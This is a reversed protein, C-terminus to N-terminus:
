TQETGADLNLDSGLTYPVRCNNDNNNSNYIRTM